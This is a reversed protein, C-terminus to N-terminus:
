GFDEPNIREKDGMAKLIDNFDEVSVNTPLFCKKVQSFPVLCHKLEFRANIRAQEACMEIYEEATMNYNTVTDVFGSFRCYRGNPQQSVFDM